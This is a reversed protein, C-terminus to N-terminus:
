AYCTLSARFSRMIRLSSRNLGVQHRKRDRLTRFSSRSKAEREFRALRGRDGTLAVRELDVVTLHYEVLHTNLLTVGNKWIVLEGAQLDARVRLQGRVGQQIYM